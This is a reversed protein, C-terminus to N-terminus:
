EVLGEAWRAMMEPLDGTATRYAYWNKLWNLFKTDGSKVGPYAFESSLKILSGDENRLAEIAPRLEFLHKVIPSEVWADVEGAELLDAGALYEGVEVLEADPFWEKVVDCTSSGRAVSFKKGPAKLTEMTEGSGKRVVCLVDFNVTPFAFDIKLARQPTNTHKPLLDAEDRLIVDIQDKWPMDMYQPKVGLDKCLLELYEIVIGAPKGTKPDIYFEESLGYSPDKTFAVPIRMIGTELVRDLASKQM